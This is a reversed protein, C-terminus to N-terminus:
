REVQAPEIQGEALSPRPAQAGLSAAGARMSNVAQKLVAETTARDGRALANALKNKAQASVTRWGPSRIAQILLGTGYGGLVAGLAGGGGASVEAGAGIIGGVGPGWRVGQQGERRSITNELVTQANKWWNFSKNIEAINPFETNLLDRLENAAKVHIQGVSNHRVQTGDFVKSQEAVTDWQQKLERMRKAPIVEIFTTVGAADTIPRKEAASRLVDVLEKGGSIASQAVPGSPVPGAPTSVTSGKTFSEQIKSAVDDVPLMADDPVNQWAEDIANRYQDVKMAVKAALGKTTMAMVGEDLLKPSVKASRLKDGKGTAALTKSYQNVASNRLTESLGGAAKGILGTTGKVVAGTVAPGAMLATLSGIGRAKQELTGPTMIKANAAEMAPGIVPVAGYFGYGLASSVDGRKAAEVSEQLLQGHRRGLNKVTEVPNTTALNYLGGLTDGVAGRLFGTAAEAVKPVASYRMVTEAMTPQPKAAPADETTVIYTGGETTIKYKPM